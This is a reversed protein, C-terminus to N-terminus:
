EGTVINGTEIFTKFEEVKSWFAKNNFTSEGFWVQAEHLAGLNINEPTLHFGNDKPKDRQALGSTNEFMEKLGPKVVKPSLNTESEFSITKPDPVDEQGEASGRYEWEAKKKESCNACYKRRDPYNPNPEYTYKIDCEACNITKEM